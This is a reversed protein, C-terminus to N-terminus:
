ADAFALLFVKLSVVCDTRFSRAVRTRYGTDSQNRKFLDPQKSKEPKDGGKRSGFAEAGLLGDEVDGAGVDEVFAFDVAFEVAGHTGDIGDFCKRGADDDADAMLDFDAHIEVAERSGDSAFEFQRGGDFPPKPIARVAAAGEIHAIIEEKRNTLPGIVGAIIRVRSEGLLPLMARSNGSAGVVERFIDDGQGITSASLKSELLGDGAAESEGGLPVGAIM